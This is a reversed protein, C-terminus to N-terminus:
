DFAPSTFKDFFIQDTPTGCVDLLDLAADVMPPPGCLYVETRSSTRRRHRKGRRDVRIGLIRSGSRRIRVGRLHLRDFRCRPLHDRRRLVLRGPNERRLLLARSPHQRVREHPPGAVPRTGHRCWRRHLGGAPRSRGQPDLLRVPRDPFHQRRGFNRRGALSRIRRGSIEQHPIRGPEADVTDVGHLLIQVRRHRTDASRRVPGTQVRVGRAQDTRPTPGRHRRHGVRGLSRPHHRESDSNWRTTRRRRFQAARHHL